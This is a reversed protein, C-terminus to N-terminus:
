RAGALRGHVTALASLAAANAQLISDEITEPGAAAGAVFVGARSTAGVIGFAPQRAINGHRNLEVGFVQSLLLNDLNPDMGIALVVLDYSNAVPRRALTDEGKVILSRGNGAVEAPRSRVYRVRFREQSRWYLESEQAGTTRIDTYYVDVQSQPLEERIAMAQAIAVGCCVKSCWERGNRRDRSGVCLLIAVRDPRVGDSPRRIGEGSALMQGVQTSTVVDPFLGFGLEPRGRADFHTFGSALIVAGPKVWSGDVLEASFDGAQGAFLRIATGRRVEVLSSAEVRSVMAGIADKAWENGPLLRGYGTHIPAGGLVPTKEVLTSPQDLVALAHAAALGAPGGGVILVPKTM